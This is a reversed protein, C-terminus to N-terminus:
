RVPRCRGCPYRGQKTAAAVTAKRLSTTCWALGDCRPTTHYAYSNGGQCLYVLHDAAASKRPLRAAATPQRTPATTANPTQLLLLALLLM